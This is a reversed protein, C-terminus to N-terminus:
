TFNIETNLIIKDTKRHYYSDNIVCLDYVISHVCQRVRAHVYVCM